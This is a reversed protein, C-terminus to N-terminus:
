SHPATIDGVVPLDDSAELEIELWPVERDSSVDVTLTVSDGEVVRVANLSVAFDPDPWRHLLMGGLVWAIAASALVAITPSGALVAFVGLGSALLALAVGRPTVYPQMATSRNM